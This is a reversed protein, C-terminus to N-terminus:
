RESGGRSKASRGGRVWAALRWNAEHWRLARHRRSALARRALPDLPAEEDYARFFRWRDAATLEAGRRNLKAMSRDFRILNRERAERRLSGAEVTSKDFDVLIPREDGGSRSIMVNKVHLDAHYIGVDHMRRITRATAELIRVRRVAQERDLPTRQALFIEVLDACDELEEQVISWRQFVRGRRGVCALVEPTPIGGTRAAESVVIERCPRDGGLFAGRLIGGFLGGHRYQRVFVRRREGDGTAPGELSAHDARGTRRRIAGTSSALLGELDLIGWALLRDRCARRIALITRERRILEFSEPLGGGAAVASM